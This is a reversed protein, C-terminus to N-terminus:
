MFHFMSLFLKVRYFLQRIPDFVYFCESKYKFM